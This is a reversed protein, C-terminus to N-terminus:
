SLQGLRVPCPLTCVVRDSEPLRESVSDCATGRVGEPINRAILDQGWMLVCLCGPVCTCALVSVCECVYVIVCIFVAVLM